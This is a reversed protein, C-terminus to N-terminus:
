SIYEKERSLKSKIITSALRTYGIDMTHAMQKLEELDAISIRISIQTMKKAM